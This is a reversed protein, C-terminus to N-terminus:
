LKSVFGASELGMHIVPGDICALTEGALCAHRTWPSSDFNALRVQLEDVRSTMDHSQLQMAALKNQLADGRMGERQVELELWKTRAMDANAADRSEQPAGCASAADSHTVFWLLRGHGCIYIALVM